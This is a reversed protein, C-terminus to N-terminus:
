MKQIQFPENATQNTKKKVLTFYHDKIKKVKVKFGWDQQRVQYRGGPLQTFRAQGENDTVVRYDEGGRKMTRKGNKSYLTLIEDARPNGQADLFIFALEYRRKRIIMLRVRQWIVWMVILFLLASGSIMLIQRLRNKQKGAKIEKAMEPVYPIRYGQVLLRHSNIMYPTCTMLTAREEGKFIRLDELNTPEIVKIKDVQYALTETQNELFFRDGIKLEPLETFLTAEPLGRHASIVTHTSDGGVPYSTGALLGAGRSLFLDSTGDFIPIEVGIKPIKVIGITHQAYYDVSPEQAEEPPSEFPDNGPATEEKALRENEAIMKEHAAKQAQAEKEDAQRQYHNLIQYDLFNNLSDEVFPYLIALLGALVLLIMLIDGINKKMLSGGLVNEFALSM